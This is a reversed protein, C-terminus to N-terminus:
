GISIDPLIDENKIINNNKEESFLEEIEPKIIYVSVRDYNSFSSLMINKNSFPKFIDIGYTPSNNKYILTKEISNTFYGLAINIKYVYGEFDTSIIEYQKKPDIFLFQIALIKSKHVNNINIILKNQEIDFISIYGNEYGIALFTNQTVIDISSVGIKKGRIDNNIFSKIETENDISIMRTIGETDGIFLINNSQISLSIIKQNFYKSSIKEKKTFELLKFQLTSSTRNKQLQNIKDQQISSPLFLNYKHEICEIFQIPSLDTYKSLNEKSEEKNKLTEEEENKELTKDNSKKRQYIDEDDFKDVNSLFEM